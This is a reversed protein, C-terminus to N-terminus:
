FDPSGDEDDSTTDTSGFGAGSDDDDSAAQGFALKTQGGQVLKIIQVGRIEMRLGLNVEGPKLWVYPQLALRLISGGWIDPKDDEAIPNEYRDVFPITANWAKGRKSVGSAVRNGGLTLMGTPNGEDDLEEKLPYGEMGLSRTKLRNVIRLNTAHLKKFEGLGWSLMEDLEAQILAGEDADYRLKCTFEGEKKFKDDPVNLKPWVAVGPRTYYLKPLEVRNPIEKALTV